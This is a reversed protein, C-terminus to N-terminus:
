DRNRLKIIIATLMKGVQNIKNEIELHQEKSIYGLRFAIEQQTEIEANSGRAIKLFQIYELRSRSHGEAINSPVSVAARQLQSCLGYMEEKPFSKTLLYVQEVVDMANQWVILDKYSKM